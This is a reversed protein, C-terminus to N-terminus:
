LGVANGIVLALMSVLIIGASKNYIRNATIFIFTLTVIGMAVLDFMSTELNFTIPAVLSASGLVVAINALNSGVVNGIAMDGDGNKVAMLTVVFEPLSTGFAVLILGIVWESVGFSLAINSASEITYNAGVSVLVFGVVLLAITKGWLFKEKALEEDVELDGKSDEDTILFYVYAIMLLLLIVGEFRSVEGNFVVIYFIAVPIFAWGADKFFIDRSPHMKNSVLFAFGLVMTINFINSGLVNSVAIEGHGSFSAKISAAMEPLSTGLAILTAGIIFSPINFHLAIREAEKIVKDAGFILAAMSLTFIIFDM